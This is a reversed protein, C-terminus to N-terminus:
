PSALDERLLSACATCCAQPTTMIKHLALGRIRAPLIFGPTSRCGCGRSTAGGHGDLGHFPRCIMATVRRRNRRSGALRQRGGERAERSKASARGPNRPREVGPKIRGARMRPSFHLQRNRSFIRTIVPGVAGAASMKAPPKNCSRRLWGSCKGGCNLIIRDKMAESVVRMFCDVARLCCM